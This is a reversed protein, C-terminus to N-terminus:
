RNSRAIKDGRSKHRPSLLFLLLFFFRSAFRVRAASLVQFSILFFFFFLVPNLTTIKKKELMMMMMTGSLCSDVTRSTEVRKRKQEWRICFFVRPAPGPAPTPPPSPAANEDHGLARSPSGCLDRLVPGAALTSFLYLLLLLLSTRKKINKM